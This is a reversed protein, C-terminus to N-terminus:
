TPPIPISQRYQWVDTSFAAKAPIGGVFVHMFQWECIQSWLGYRSGTRSLKRVSREISHVRTWSRGSKTYKSWEM